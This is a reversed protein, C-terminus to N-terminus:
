VFLLVRGTVFVSSQKGGMPGQESFLYYPAQDTVMAYLWTQGLVQM